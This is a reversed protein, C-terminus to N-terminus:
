DAIGSKSKLAAKPRGALAAAADIGTDRQPSGSHQGGVSHMWLTV